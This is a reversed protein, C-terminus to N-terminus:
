HFEPKLRELVARIMGCCLDHIRPIYLTVGFALIMAIM